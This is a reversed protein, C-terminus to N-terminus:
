STVTLSSQAPTTHGSSLDSVTCYVTYNLGDYQTNIFTNHLTCNYM